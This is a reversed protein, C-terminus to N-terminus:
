GELKHLECHFIVTAWDEVQERELLFQIFEMTYLRMCRTVTESNQEKINIQFHGRTITENQKKLEEIHDISVLIYPQVSDGNERQFMIIKHKHGPEKLGTILKVDGRLAYQKGNWSIFRPQKKTEEEGKVEETTTATTTTVVIDSQKVKKQLPASSDYVEEERQRKNTSTSSSSSSTTIFHETGVTSALLRCYENTGFNQQLQQQQEQQLIKQQLHLIYASLNQITQEYQMKTQVLDDLKDELEEFSPM